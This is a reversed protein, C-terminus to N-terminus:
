PFNSASPCSEILLSSTADCLFTSSRDDYGYTYVYPCQSELALTYDTSGQVGLATCGASDYRYQHGDYTQWSDPCCYKICESSMPNGANLVCLDCPGLCTNPSGNNASCGTQDCHYRRSAHVGEAYGFKQGFDPAGEWTWETGGVNNKNFVTGTPITNASDGDPGSVPAFSNSGDPCNSAPDFRCASGSCWFPDSTSSGGCSKMGVSSASTWANVASMDYYVQQDTYTFEFESNRSATDGVGCSGGYENCDSALWGTGSPWTIGPAMDIEMSGGAPLGFYPNCQCTGSLCYVTGVNKGGTVDKAISMCEDVGGEVSCTKGEWPCSPRPVWLPTTRGDLKFYRTDQCSNLLKIKRGESSPCGNSNISLTNNQTAGAYGSCLFAMTATTLLVKM